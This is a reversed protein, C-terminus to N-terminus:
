QNVFEIKIEKPTSSDNNFVLAFQSDSPAQWDYQDGDAVKSWSSVLKVQDNAGSYTGVAINIDSESNSHKKTSASNVSVMMKIRTGRSINGLKVTYNSNAQVTLPGVPAARYFGPKPAPTVTPQPTPSPTATPQPTSTAKVTPQPTPSSTATASVVSLPPASVPSTLRQEGGRKTQEILSVLKGDIGFGLYIVGFLLSGVLGGAIIEPCLLMRIRSAIM